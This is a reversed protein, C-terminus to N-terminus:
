AREWRSPTPFLSGLIESVYAGWEAGAAPGDNLCLFKPRGGEGDLLQRRAEDLHARGLHPFVAFGDAPYVFRSLGERLSLYTAVMNTVFIDPHRFRYRTLTQIEDRFLAHFRPWVSKRFPQAVHAPLNWGVEPLVSALPKWLRRPTRMKFLPRYFDGMHRELMRVGNRLSSMYPAQDDGPPRLPLGHVQVVATGDADFFDEVSTPAALFFDDNLYVYHEALGPIRHLFAEIADSSYSPALAPDPFLTDDRVLSLSPDDTRLWAPPAGGHVVHVRRLFPANRDISRLSHRLEGNDRYRHVAHSSQPYGDAAYRERAARRAAQYDPDGANAWTYVADVPFAAGAREEEAGRTHEETSDGM